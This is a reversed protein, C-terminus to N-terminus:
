YANYILNYRIRIPHDYPHDYPQDFMRNFLLNMPVTDKTCPFRLVLAAEQALILNSCEQLITKTDSPDNPRGQRRLEEAIEADTPMVLEINQPLARVARVMEAELEDTGLEDEVLKWLRCGCQVDVVRTQTDFTFQVSRMDFSHIRVCYGGQFPSVANPYTENYGPNHAMFDEETCGYGVAGQFQYLTDSLKTENFIYFVEEDEGYFGRINKFTGYLPIISM